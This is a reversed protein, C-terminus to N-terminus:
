FNLRPSQNTERGPRKVERSLAEPVWKIPPMNPGMASKSTETLYIDQGYQLELRPNDLRYM